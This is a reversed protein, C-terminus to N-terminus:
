VWVVLFNKNYVHAQILILPKDISCVITSNHVTIVCSCIYVLGEDVTLLTGTIIYMFVRNYAYIYIHVIHSQIINCLNPLDGFKNSIVVESIDQCVHIM